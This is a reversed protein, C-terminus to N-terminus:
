SAGAMRKLGLVLLGPRIQEPLTRSGMALPLPRPQGAPGVQRHSVTAPGSTLPLFSPLASVSASAHSSLQAAAKQAQSPRPFSLPTPHPGGHWFWLPPNKGRKKM